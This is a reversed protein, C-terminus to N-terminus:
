IDGGRGQRKGDSKIEGQKGKNRDDAAQAEEMAPVVVLGGVLAIALALAFTLVMTESKM